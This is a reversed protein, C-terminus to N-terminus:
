KKEPKIEVKPAAAAPAAPPEISVLEVEFVLTANPGIAPPAHDKYALDSPITLKYKSGVPMLQVAETWGPIVGNLPFTVPGGHDASADFKTGDIKTGTYSVKVTDTDKPKPGTGQTIVEYQLGSATTKVGAKTKNKALYAEGDKKNKEADEKEKVQQKAQLRTMFDTRVKTAEEQTLATKEGKVAAQLGQFLINLDIEDKIQTLSRGIEMGVVYSAKEKDTKLPTEAAFGASSAGLAAIVTAATLTKRLSHIM